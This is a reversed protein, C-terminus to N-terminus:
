RKKTKRRRRRRRRRRGGTDGSHPQTNGPLHDQEEDESLLMGNSKQMMPM